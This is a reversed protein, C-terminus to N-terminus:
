RAKPEGPRLGQLAEAASGDLGEGIAQEVARWAAERQGQGVLHSALLVWANPDPADEAYRAALRQLRRREGGPLLEDRGVGLAGADGAIAIREVLLGAAVGTRGAGELATIYRDSAGEFEDHLAQEHAAAVDYRGDRLAEDAIEAVSQGRPRAAYIEASGAVLSPAGILTEGQYTGRTWYIYPRNWYAAGTQRRLSLNTHPLRTDDTPELAVVTRASPGMGLAPDLPIELSARRADQASATITLVFLCSAGAARSLRQM